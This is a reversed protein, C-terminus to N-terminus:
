GSTKILAVRNEIKEVHQDYYVSGTITPACMLLQLSNNVISFTFMIALVLRDALWKIVSSARFMLAILGLKFM